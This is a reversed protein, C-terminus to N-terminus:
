ICSIKEKVKNVEQSEKPEFRGQNSIWNFAFKKFRGSLVSCDWELKEMEVTAEFMATFKVFDNIQKKFQMMLAEYQTPYNIELFSLSNGERNMTNNITNNEYISKRKEDIPRASKTLLTKRKEDIPRASKTLVKKANNQLFIKRKNGEKKNLVTRIHGNSELKSIWRSITFLSVKYLQAFYLNEAWCYGEVSCMASIEGYLLKANPILDNDYRVTAPIVAYFNPEIM